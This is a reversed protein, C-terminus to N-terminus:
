HNGNEYERLKTYIPLWRRYSRHYALYDAHALEKMFTQGTEYFHLEEEHAHMALKALRLLKNMLREVLWSVM